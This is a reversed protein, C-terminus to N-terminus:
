WPVTRPKSRISGSTSPSNRATAARLGYLDSEPETSGLEPTGFFPSRGGVPERRLRDPVLMDVSRGLMEDREYGFLEEARANVWAIRGERDAVIMADPARELIEPVNGIRATDGSPHVPMMPANDSEILSPM